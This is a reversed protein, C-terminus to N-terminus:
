APLSYPDNAANAAVPHAAFRMLFMEAAPDIYVTQGHVGRATYAADPDHM